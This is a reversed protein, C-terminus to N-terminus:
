LVVSEDYILCDIMKIFLQSDTKHEYRLNDKSEVSSETSKLSSKVSEVSAEVSAEKSEVLKYLHQFNGSFWLPSGQFISPFGFPPGKSFRRFDLPPGKSFRSKEFM